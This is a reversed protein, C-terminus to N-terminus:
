KLLNKIQLYMMYSYIEILDRKSLDKGRACVRVYVFKYVVREGDKKISDHVQTFDNCVLLGELLSITVKSPRKGNNPVFHQDSYKGKIFSVRTVLM